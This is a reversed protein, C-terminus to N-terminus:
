AASSRRKALRRASRASAALVRGAEQFVEHQEAKWAERQEPTGVFAQPSTHRTQLVKYAASVDPHEATLLEWSRKAHNGCLIVVELHTMLGLVELLPATGARLEAVSPARNVYWPYANWPMTESLDIGADALLGALRAATPDDNEICLFGRGPNEPDVTRPGPDRFIWMVRARIGGHVPAVYPVWGRPDASLRDVLDNVPKVHPDSLHDRQSKRYAPDAM